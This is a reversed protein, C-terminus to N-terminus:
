KIGRENLAKAYRAANEQHEKYTVAFRHTGSFDENACMYLYDHEVRNLVADIGQVSAIKIPGPPLGQNQYTNWPSNIDLMGRYIRRLDFRKMAFKITPDAQLPMHQHLRNLYMGAVMPKEQQNATEEDIISALTCVENESLGLQAAQERRKGDWFRDHEKQMREMFHDLTTNWYVDYTNPVFLCAITATDYGQRACFASDLLADAIEASDLMLKSSLQAALREMTRSEPVVLHLPAQQGNKLRRLVSLTSMGPEIAYRGERPNEAYKMHRALVSFGTMGHRTAHPELKMCVSDINDDQDIYVYSVARHSSFDSLFFYYGAGIIGLLCLVAPIIYFKAKNIDM